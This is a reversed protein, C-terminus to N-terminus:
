ESQKAFYKKVDELDNPIAIIKKDKDLVFYSPTGTLNYKVITENDFKYTPHTGMANHWYPLNKQFENWDTSKYNEVAFSVVSVENYKQMETHLEPIDRTCHPCSTSWFILLYKEGDALTSLKLEKGAEKWSFDPAIRGVTANLFQLTEKRFVPDIEEEPLEDYYNEFMWDVIPGNRKEALSTILFVTVSKKLQVGSLKDMVKTISEKLLKQQLEKNDSYNLYFVYDAIRDVLFSSNYLAENNFDIYKFFYNVTSSLYEDMNDIPSSPNYRQSAEIFNYVLMGDSKNEYIDQINELEKVATKYAKKTDKNGNKIYDVQNEDIKNQILAYSQLYETYLKNERSATFVVSQGPYKPNFIFEINEKNFYFDVFGAGKNRYTARYAGVPADEPLTFEFKGLTQKEGGVVITNSKITTNSIFKPKAGQLKHLYVWDSKEPPTMTGKITYQASVISTALILLSLLKKM